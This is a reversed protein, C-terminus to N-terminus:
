LPKVRELEQAAEQAKCRAQRELERRRLVLDNLDEPQREGDLRSDYGPPCVYAPVRAGIGGPWEMETRQCPSPACDSRPPPQNAVQGSSVCSTLSVLLLVMKKM